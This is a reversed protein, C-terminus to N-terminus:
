PPKYHIPSVQGLEISKKSLFIQFFLIGIKFTGQIAYIENLAMM